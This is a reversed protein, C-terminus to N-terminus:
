GHQRHKVAERVPLSKYENAIEIGAADLLFECGEKGVLM